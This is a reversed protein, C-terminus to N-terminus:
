VFEKPPMPIDQNIPRWLHLVYLNFNVYDKKPPHYQIVCENEEWFINKIFNMEEWTPTRNKLSVSVHEWGENDPGSSLCLLMSASFPSSVYFAGMTGSNKPTAYDGKLIRGQEYKPSLQKRM